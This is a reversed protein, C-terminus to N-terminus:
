GLVFEGTGLFHKVDFSPCAKQVGAVDRHGEIWQDTFRYHDKLGGLLLQLAVGQRPTFNAEADSGNWPSGVVHEQPHQSVGGILCVSVHTANRGGHKCHAGRADMPRGAHITGHRDIVFHYGICLWGQTRHMRDVDLADWDQSPRSASCHVTAGLTRSRNKFRLGAFDLSHKINLHELKTM